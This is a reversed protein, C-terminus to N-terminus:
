GVIKSDMCSVAKVTVDSLHSHSIVAHLWLIIADNQDSVKPSWRMRDLRGSLSPEPLDPPKHGSGPTNPTVGCCVNCLQEACCIGTNSRIDLCFKGQQLKERNGRPRCSHVKLCEGYNRLTKVIDDDQFIPFFIWLCRQINNTQLHRGFHCHIVASLATTVTLHLVRPVILCIVKQDRAPVRMWQCTTWGALNNGLSPYANFLRLCLSACSSTPGPGFIM